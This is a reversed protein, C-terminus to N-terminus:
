FHNRRPFLVGSIKLWGVYTVWTESGEGKAGSGSVSPRIRGSFPAPTGPFNNWSQSWLPILLHQLEPSPLNSLIMFNESLPYDSSQSSFSFSYLEFFILILGFFVLLICPYCFWNLTIANILLNDLQVWIM